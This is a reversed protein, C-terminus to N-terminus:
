DYQELYVKVTPDESFYQKLLSLIKDADTQKNNSTYGIHLFLLINKLSEKATMDKTSMIKQIDAFTLIFEGHAILKQYQKPSYLEYNMMMIAHNYLEYKNYLIAKELNDLNSINKNYESYYYHGLSVIPNNANWIIDSFYRSGRFYDIISNEDTLIIVEHSLTPSLDASYALSNIKLQSFFWFGFQAAEFCYSAQKNIFQPLDYYGGNESPKGYRGMVGKGNRLSDLVKKYAEQAQKLTIPKDQWGAGLIHNVAKMVTGQKDDLWVLPLNNAYIYAAVESEIADTEKTFAPKFRLAIYYHNVIEPEELRDNRAGYTVGNAPFGTDANGYKSIFGEYGEGANKDITGNRNKDQLGLHKLFIAALPSFSNLQQSINIAGGSYDQAPLLALGSLLLLLLTLHKPM